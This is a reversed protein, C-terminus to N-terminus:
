QVSSCEFINCNTHKSHAQPADADTTDQQVLHPEVNGLVGALSSLANPQLLLLLQPSNFHQLSVQSHGVGTSCTQLASAELVDEDVLEAVLEFRTPASAGAWCAHLM